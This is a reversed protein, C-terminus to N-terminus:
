ARAQLLLVREIGAYDHCVQASAFGARRAIGIVDAAQGAGLELALLGSSLLFDSAGTIIERYADLGDAGGNLAQYSEQQVEPSLQPIMGEEIYPPNSVIINFPKWGQLAALAAYYHGQLFLIRADVNQCRSNYRATKLAKEDKDVAVISSRPMNFALSVAICGSGTGLELINFNDGVKEGEGRRAWHLVAEVLHETEPRPIFIGREVYFRLGMFEKEKRIYALPEGSARRRCLGEFHKCGDYSLEADAHAYLYPREVGLYFALLLEAEVQPGDMNRSRLYSVAEQLAEKITKGM